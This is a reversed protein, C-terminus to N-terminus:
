CVTWCHLSRSMQGDNATGGAKVAESALQDYVGLYRMVEWTRPWVSIGAGVTTIEPGAEYLDILIPSMPDEYQGLTVALALGAIGGGRCPYPRSDAVDFLIITTYVHVIALRFRPQASTSGDTM